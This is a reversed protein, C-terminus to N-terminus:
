DLIINIFFIYQNLINYGKCKIYNFVQLMELFIIFQIFHYNPHYNPSLKFYPHLSYHIISVFYSYLLAFTYKLLNYAYIYIYYWQYLSWQISCCSKSHSKIKLNIPLNNLSPKTQASDIIQTALTVFLQHVGDGTKASTFQINSHHLKAFQYAFQVDIQYEDVLDSKNGAM